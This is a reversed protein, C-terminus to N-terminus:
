KISFSVPQGEWPGETVRNSEFQAWTLRVSVSGEVGKLKAWEDPGPAYDTNTTFVEVINKDSASSFVLYYAAGSIPDGHAHAVPTNELLVGFAREMPDVERAKPLFLDETRVRVPALERPSISASAGAEAWIFTFPTDSDVVQDQTPEEFALAKAPDNKTQAATLADLAEDTAGGQYIVGDAGVEEDDCATTFTFLYFAGTFAAAGLLLRRSMM